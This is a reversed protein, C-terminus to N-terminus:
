RSGDACIYLDMSTVSRGMMPAKCVVLSRVDELNIAGADAKLETLRRSWGMGRVACECLPSEIFAWADWCSQM